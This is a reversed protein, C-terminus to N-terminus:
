TEGDPGEPTASPTAPAPTSSPSMVVDDDVVVEDVAVMEVTHIYGVPVIPQVIRSVAPAYRVGILSHRVSVLAPSAVDIRARRYALGLLM